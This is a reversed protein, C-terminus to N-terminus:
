GEQLGLFWVQGDIEIGISDDIGTEPEVMAINADPFERRLVKEIRTLLTITEM